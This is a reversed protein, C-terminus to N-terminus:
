TRISKVYSNIKLDKLRSNDDNVKRKCKLIIAIVVVVLGVILAIDLVGVAAAGGEPEPNSPNDAM